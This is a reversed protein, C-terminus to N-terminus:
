ALAGLTGPLNKEIQDKYFVKAIPSGAKSVSKSQKVAKSKDDMITGLEAHM